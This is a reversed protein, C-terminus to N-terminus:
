TLTVHIKHEVEGDSKSPNWTCTKNAASLTIGWFEEHTDVNTMTFSNVSPTIPLLLRLHHQSKQTDFIAEFLDSDSTHPYQLKVVWSSRLCGPCVACM